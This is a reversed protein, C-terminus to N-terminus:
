EYEREVYIREKTVYVAYKTEPRMEIFTSATANAQELTPYCALESRNFHGGSRVVCYYPETM